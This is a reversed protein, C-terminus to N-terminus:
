TQTGGTTLTSSPLWGFLYAKPICHDAMRAVHGFWELRRRKVRSAAAEPDGWRRRIETSTIHQEWQQKNTIGFISRVCRNHFSDLRKLQKKLPTWCESGYLLVSLVCAQYVKRKTTVQDKDMFASKRLAGFARSAQAIQRSVDLEVQGDSSVVSGLYPFESVSEIEEGGVILPTMDEPTVERGVPMSKTKPISLTLGFDNAVMMYKETAREAGSKTTALFAADDAFQCETLRREEYNRTYQQFLKQDLKCRLYIGVRVSNKM